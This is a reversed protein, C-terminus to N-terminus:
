QGLVKVAQMSAIAADQNHSKVLNGVRFVDIFWWAWGILGIMLIWLLIQLGWKGLYAYHLGFLLWCVYAMGKEKKHRKYETTFGMRQDDTLSMYSSQVMLPLDSVQFAYFRPHLAPPPSAPVAAQPTQTPAADDSTAPQTTDDATM